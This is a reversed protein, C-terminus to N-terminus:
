VWAVVRGLDFALGAELRQAFFRTKVPSFCEGWDIAVGSSPSFKAVELAEALTGAARCVQGEVGLPNSPSNRYLLAAPQVHFRGALM